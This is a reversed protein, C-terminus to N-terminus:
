SFAYVQLYEKDPFMFCMYIDSMGIPHIRVLCIAFYQSFSTEKYKGVFSVNTVHFHTLIKLLSEVSGLFEIDISCRTLHLVDKPLTQAPVCGKSEFCM